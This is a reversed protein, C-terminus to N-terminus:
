NNIITTKTKIETELDLIKNHIIRIVLTFYNENTKKNYLSLKAKPTTNIFFKYAEKTIKNIEETSLTDKKVLHLKIIDYAMYKNIIIDIAKNTDEYIYQIDIGSLITKYKKYIICDYVIVSINVATVIFLFFLSLM